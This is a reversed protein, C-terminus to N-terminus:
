LSSVLTAMSNAASHLGSFAQHALHGAGSPQTVVYYVLFAIFAWTMLKKLM